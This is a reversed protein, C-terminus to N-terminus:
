ALASGAPLRSGVGRRWVVGAGDGRVQVGSGETVWSLRSGRGEGSWLWVRLGAMDLGVLVGRGVEEMEMGMGRGDEEAYARAEGEEEVAELLVVLEGVEGEVGAREAASFPM